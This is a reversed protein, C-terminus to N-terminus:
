ELSKNKITTSAIIFLTVCYGFICLAAILIGLAMLPGVKTSASSYYNFLLFSYFYIQQAILIAFIKLNLIANSNKRFANGFVFCPSFIWSLVVPILIYGAAHNAEGFPITFFVHWSLLVYALFCVFFVWNNLAIKTNM